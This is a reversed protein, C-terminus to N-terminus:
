YRPPPLHRHEPDDHHPCEPSQTYFKLGPYDLAELGVRSTYFGMVTYRRMLAFFLAGAHDAQESAISQLLEGQRGANLEIFSRGGVKRAEGDLWALGQQAPEHLQKEGHAALFDILESVGAEKAGPTEDAPIILEAIVEITRYQHADFFAPRYAPRATPTAQAHAHEGAFSWRCFGPFQSAAAAKALIELVRRRDPAQNAM